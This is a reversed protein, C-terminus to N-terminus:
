KNVPIQHLYKKINGLRLNCLTQEEIDSISYKFLANQNITNGVLTIGRKNNIMWKSDCQEKTVNKCVHIKM